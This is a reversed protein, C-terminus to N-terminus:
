NGHSTYQQPLLTVLAELTHIKHISPDICQRNRDLLVAQFGANQPGRYDEELDNGVHLIESPHLALAEAGMQFLAPNPKEVGTIGSILAAKFYHSIGLKNLFRELIPSYNSIVIMPIGQARLTQLCPLVDSYLMTFEGAEYRELFQHATKKPEPLDMESFVEEYFWLWYRRSNEESAYPEFGSARWKVTEEKTYQLIPQLDELSFYKGHSAAAHLFFNEFGMSAGAFTGVLTGDADFSLGKVPNM